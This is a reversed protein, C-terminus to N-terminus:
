LLVLLGGERDARGVFAFALELDNVFGPVTRTLGPVAVELGRGRRRLDLEFKESVTWRLCLCSEEAWM